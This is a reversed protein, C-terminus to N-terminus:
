SSPSRSLQASRSVPTHVDDLVPWRCHGSLVQLRLAVDGIAGMDRVAGEIFVIEEPRGRFHQYYAEVAEYASESNVRSPQLDESLNSVFPPLPGAQNCVKGWLHQIEPPLEAFTFLPLTTFGPRPFMDAFLIGGINSLELAAAQLQALSSSTAYFTKDSDALTSSEMENWTAILRRFGEEMGGSRNKDELTYLVNFPLNAYEHDAAHDTALANPRTFPQNRDLHLVLSTIVSVM